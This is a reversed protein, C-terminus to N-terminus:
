EKLQTLTVDSKEPVVTKDTFFELVFANVEELTKFDYNKNFNSREVDDAISIQAGFILGQQYISIHKHKM